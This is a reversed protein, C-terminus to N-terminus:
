DLVEKKIILESRIMSCDFIEGFDDWRVNVSGDENESLTTIPNWKGAWCAELPTGPALKANPPVVVSHLPVDISMPYAKRPKMANPNAKVSLDNEHTSKREATSPQAKAPPASNGQQVPHRPRPADTQYGTFFLGILVLITLLLSLVILGWGIAKYHWPLHGGYKGIARVVNPSILSAIGLVLMLPALGVVAMYVMGTAAELALSGVTLVIGFALMGCAVLRMRADTPGGSPNSVGANRAHPSVPAYRGPESSAPTGPLNARGHLTGSAPAAPSQFLDTRALPDLQDSATLPTPSSSTAVTATTFTTGCLGCRVRKGRNSDSVQYRQSCNPCQIEHPM